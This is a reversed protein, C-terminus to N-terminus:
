YFNVTSSDQIFVEEYKKRGRLQLLINLLQLTITEGNLYVIKGDMMIKISVIGGGLFSTIVQSM